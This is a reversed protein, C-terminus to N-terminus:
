HCARTYAPVFRALDSLNVAGDFVLDSRFAYPGYFDQVFLPIDTLFVDGSGDIDASNFQLDSGNAAPNGLWKLPEVFAATHIEVSEVGPVSHGGGLIPQSFRTSWYWHPPEPFPLPPVQFDGSDLDAIAGQASCTFLGGSSTVLTVSEAPYGVVPLNDADRLLVYIVVDVVGGGSGLVAATFNNGSGDPNVFLVAPATNEDAWIPGGGYRAWFVGSNAWVPPGAAAAPVAGAIALLLVLTWDAWLTSFQSSRTM